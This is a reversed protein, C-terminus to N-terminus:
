GKWEMFLSQYDSWNLEAEYPLTRKWIAFGSHILMWPWWDAVSHSSWNSPCKSIGEVCILIIVNNSPMSSGSVLTRVFFWFFLNTDDTENVRIYGSHQVVKEPGYGSSFAQVAAVSLWVALLVFVVRMYRLRLLFEFHPTPSIETFTWTPLLFPVKWQKRRM